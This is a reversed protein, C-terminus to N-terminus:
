MHVSTVGLMAERYADKVELHFRLIFHGYTLTHYHKDSIFKSPDAAILMM